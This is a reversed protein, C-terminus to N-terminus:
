DNQGSQASQVPAVNLWECECVCVEVSLNTPLKHSIAKGLRVDVNSVCFSSEFRCSRLKM